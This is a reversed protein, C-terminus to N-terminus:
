VRGGSRDSARRGGFRVLAERLPAGLAAGAARSPAGLRLWLSRDTPPRHGAGARVGERARGGAVPAGRAAPHGSPPDPLHRLQHGRALPRGPGRLAVQASSSRIGHGGHLRGPFGLVGDVGGPRPPRPQARHGLRQDARGPRHRVRRLRARLPRRGAWRGGVQGTGAPGAARAPARVGVGRDDGARVLVGVGPVPRGRRPARPRTAGRRRRPGRLARRRRSLPGGAELRGDRPSRDGTRVAAAPPVGRGRAAAPPLLHARGLPDLAARRPRIRHRLRQGRASRADPAHRSPRRGRRREAPWGQATHAVAAPAGARRGPCALLGSVTSSGQAARLLGRERLARPGGDPPLGRLRQRHVARRRPQPANGVAPDAVGSRLARAHLVRPPLPRDGPHRLRPLRGDGSRGPHRSGRPGGQGSRRGASA